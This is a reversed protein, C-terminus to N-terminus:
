LYLLYEVYPLKIVLHNNLVTITTGKPLVTDGIDLENEIQRGVMPVPCHLRMGEKVCM